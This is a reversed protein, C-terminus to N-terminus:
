VRERCSARGIEAEAGLAQCLTRVPVLIMGDQSRLGGPVYLCRGNAEIYKAGPKLYMTLGEATVEARGNAWVATADPYLAFLIAGYSVYTTGDEAYSRVDEALPTGNVTFSVGGEAAAAQGALAFCLALCLLASLARKKM